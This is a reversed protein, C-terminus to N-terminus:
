SGPNVADRIPSRMAARGADVTVLGRPRIVYWATSAIVPLFLIGLSWVLHSFRDLNRDRQVQIFAVATYVVYGGLVLVGVAIALVTDM